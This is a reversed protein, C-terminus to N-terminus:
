GFYGIINFHISKEGFGNGKPKGWEIEDHQNEVTIQGMLEKLTTKKKVTLTQGDLTLIMETGDTLELNKTVKDPIIIALNNEVKKVKSYFTVLEKDAM